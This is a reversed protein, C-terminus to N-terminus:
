EGHRWKTLLLPILLLQLILGPYGVTLDMMALKMNNTFILIAVGGVMQTILQTLLVSLFVSSKSVRGIAYPLLAFMMAKLVVFPLVALVPMQTLFYSLGVSALAVMIGSSVGFSLTALMPFFYLPLLINGPISLQHLLTPALLSAIALGASYLYVRPTRLSLPKTITTELIM